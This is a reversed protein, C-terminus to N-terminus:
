TVLVIEFYERHYYKCHTRLTPKGQGTEKEEGVVRGRWKDEWYVRQWRRLWSKQKQLPGGPRRWGANCWDHARTFSDRAAQIATLAGATLLTMSPAGSRFFAVFHLHFSMQPLTKTFTTLRLYMPIIYMLTSSIHKMGILTCSQVTWHHEDAWFAVGKAQLKVNEVDILCKDGKKM